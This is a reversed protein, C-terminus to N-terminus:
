LKVTVAVSLVEGVDKVPLWNYLPVVTSGNVTFQTGDGGDPPGTSAPMGYEAVQVAPPPVAGYLQLRAPAVTGGRIVM